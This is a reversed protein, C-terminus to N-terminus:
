IFAIAIATLTALLKNHIVYQAADKGWLEYTVGSPHVGDSFYTEPTNELSYRESWSKLTIAESIFYCNETKSVIEQLQYNLISIWNGLAFSLARPLAPFEAIPPLHIFLLPTYPNKSRIQSILFLIDQKWKRNLTFSDNGGLGIVILDLKKETIEPVLKQAVRRATYGRRAYVKWDVTNELGEALAVAFHGTFGQVHTAVGVGAITSEGLTIIKIKSKSGITSATGAPGTAAPLEPVSQRVQKGQRALLPLLPITAVLKLLHVLKL